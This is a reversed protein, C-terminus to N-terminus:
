VHLQKRTPGPPVLEFGDGGRLEDPHPSTDRLPTPHQAVAAARARALITDVDADNPTPAEPGADDINAM